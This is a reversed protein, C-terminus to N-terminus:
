MPVSPASGAAEEPSQLSRAGGNLYGVTDGGPSMALRYGNSVLLEAATARDARSLHEHEYNVITPLRRPLDFLRLMELDYGETDIQLVDIRDIGSREFLTEFSWTEVPMARIRGLVDVGDPVFRQSKELHSRHFSAIQQTFPPLGPAPDIVYLPRTGDEDSIAVNFTQVDADDAYRAALVAYPGPQPEVLVGRWGYRRIADNIPDNAEGDYAGVQVVTLPEDCRAALHAAVFEFAIELTQPSRVLVSPKRRLEVGAKRLLRNAIDRAAM